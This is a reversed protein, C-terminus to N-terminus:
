LLNIEKEYIEICYNCGGMDFWDEIWEDDLEGPIDPEDDYALKRCLTILVDEVENQEDAMFIGKRVIHIAIDHPFFTEGQILYLIDKTM